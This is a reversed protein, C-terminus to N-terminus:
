NNNEKLKLNINDIGLFESVSRNLAKTKQGTVVQIHPYAININREKRLAELFASNIETMVIRKMDYPVAFLAMLSICSDELSVHIEPRFWSPMEGFTEEIEEKEKELKDIHEKLKKERKKKQTKEFRDSLKDIMGDIFSMRKRLNKKHRHLNRKTVEEVINGFLDRAKKWDSEYTISVKIEQKIFNDDKTYNEVPESLLLENPISVTKGSYQDAGGIVSSLITHMMRIEAVDGVYNGIKIRDGIKFSRNLNINLWGVFNLIPKQLAFTVGFGILGLSTILAGVDEFVISASVIVFLVWIGYRLFNLTRITRFDANKEEKNAVLIKISSTVIKIFVFLFFVIIFKPLSPLSNELNVFGCDYYSCMVILFLLIALFLLTKTFKPINFNKPM